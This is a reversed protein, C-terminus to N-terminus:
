KKSHSLIIWCTLITLSIAIIGTIVSFIIKGVPYKEKETIDENSHIPINFLNKEEILIRIEDATEESYYCLLYKGKYFNRIYLKETKPLSSMKSDLDKTFVYYELFISTKNNTPLIPILSLFFAFWLCIIAYYLQFNQKNFLLDISLNKNTIIGSLIVIAFPMILSVIFLLFFQVIGSIIVSKKNYYHIRFFHDLSMYESFIGFSLILLPVFTSLISILETQKSLFNIITEM